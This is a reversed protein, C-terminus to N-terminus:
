LTRLAHLNELLWKRLEDTKIDISEIADETLEIADPIYQGRSPDEFEPGHRQSLDYGLLRCIYFTEELNKEAKRHRLVFGKKVVDVTAGLEECLERHLADLITNDEDEVGGGPAVWYPASQESKIRKIFLVRNDDTLIIARVRRNLPFDETAPHFM